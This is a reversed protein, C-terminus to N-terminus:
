PGYKESVCLGAVVEEEIKWEREGKGSKHADEACNAQSFPWTNGYKDKVAGNKCGTGATKNVHM